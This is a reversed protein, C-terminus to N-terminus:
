LHTGYVSDDFASDTISYCDEERRRSAVTSVDWNLDPFLTSSQKDSQFDGFQGTQISSELEVDPTMDPIKFSKLSKGYVSPAAQRLDIDPFEAGAMIDKDWSDDEGYKLQQLNNIEWRLLRRRRWLVGAIMLAFGVTAIGIMTVGFVLRQVFNQANSSSDGNENTSTGDLVVEANGMFIRSQQMNSLAENSSSSHLITMLEDGSFAVLIARELMVTSPAEGSFRAWGKVNVVVHFYATESMRRRAVYDQVSVDLLVQKFNPTMNKLVKSLVISVAELLEVVNVENAKKTLKLVLVFDPIKVFADDYTFSDTSVETTNLQDGMELSPMAIPVENPSQKPSNTPIKQNSTPSITPKITPVNSEVVGPTAGPNLNNVQQGNTMDQAKNNQPLKRQVKYHVSHLKYTKDENESNSAEKQQMKSNQLNDFPNRSIQQADDNVHWIGLPQKLSETAIISALCTLAVLLFVYKKM